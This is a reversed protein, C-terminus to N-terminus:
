AIWSRILMSVISLFPPVGGWCRCSRPKRCATRGRRERRYTRSCRSDCWCTTRSAAPSASQANSRAPSRRHRRLFRDRRTRSGSRPRAVLRGNRCASSNFARVEGVVPDIRAENFRMDGLRTAAACACMRMQEELLIGGRWAANSRRRWTLSRRSARDGDGRRKCPVTTLMATLSPSVTRGPWCIATTSAMFISCRIVAACPPM